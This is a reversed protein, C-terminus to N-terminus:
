AYAGVVALEFDDHEIPTATVKENALSGYQTVNYQPSEDRIARAEVVLAVHRSKYRDVTFRALRPFWEATAKHQSVRSYANLSCGVYLLNGASDFCRYVDAGFREIREDKRSWM